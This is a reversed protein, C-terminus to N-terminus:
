LLRPTVLFFVTLKAKSARTHQREGLQCRERARAGGLGALVAVPSFALRCRKRERVSEECGRRECACGRKECPM